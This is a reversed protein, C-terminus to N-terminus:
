PSRELVLSVPAPWNLSALSACIVTPSFLGLVTLLTLFPKPIHFSPIPVQRYKSDHHAYLRTPAPLRAVTAKPGSAPGRGTKPVFTCNALEGGEEERKRAAGPHLGQFNLHGTLRWDVETM